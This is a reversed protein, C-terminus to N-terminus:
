KFRLILEIEQQENLPWSYENELLWEEPCILEGNLYWVESDKKGTEYFSIFAPGDTRHFAGHLYWAEFLIKGSKRYAIHAPGDTRHYEGNQFWYEKEIEGIENRFSHYRTEENLNKDLKLNRNKLM